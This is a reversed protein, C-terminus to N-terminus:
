RMTIEWRVVETERNKGNYHTLQPSPKNNYNFQAFTEGKVSQTRRKLVVDLVTRSIIGSSCKTSALLSRCPEGVEELEPSVDARDKACDYCVLIEATVLGDNDKCCDVSDAM